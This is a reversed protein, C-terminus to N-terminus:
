QEYTVTYDSSSLTFSGKLGSTCIIQKDTTILVMEFGGYTRWYDFAKDKGLVFMATSLCDATLGSKCVITVSLLGSDAPYGTHPDLIHHYTKGDKVFYREYSGSTIVATEGVSLVGAYKTTDSPDEVAVNWNSGDPKTGLTQVNGGLSVVASTVGQAKMAAIASDSTYGKAVSGFSIETGVPMTVTSHSVTLKNLGVNKLAADIEAQTPVRGEGGNDLDIFGWLVSLPYVTLDLAGGTREYVTQAAALMATIDDTVKVPVGGASNMAYVKSDKNQTDLENDLNTIVSTAADVGAQGGDGYADLTMVTDMAFFQKHGTVEAQGCGSAALLVSACLVAPILKKLFNKM